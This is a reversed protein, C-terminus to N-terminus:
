RSTGRGLVGATDLASAACQTLPKSRLGHGHVRAAFHNVLQLITDADFPKLIVADADLPLAAGGNGRATMVVIPTSSFRPDYRSELIFDQGTMVPMALDLLVVDPCLARLRELGERGDQAFVVEFGGGTLIDTLGERVGADDEVVLVRGQAIINTM